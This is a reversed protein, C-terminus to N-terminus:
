LQKNYYTYAVFVNNYDRKRRILSEPLNTSRSNILIPFQPTLSRRRRVVTLKDSLWQGLRRKDRSSVPTKLGTTRSTYVHCRFSMFIYQTMNVYTLIPTSAYLCKYGLTISTRLLLSRDSLLGYSNTLLHYSGIRWSKVVGFNNITCLSDTM